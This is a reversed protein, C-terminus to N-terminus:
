RFLGVFEYLEKARPNKEFHTRVPAILKDLYKATANKLDMPHVRGKRYAEELEAYSEFSIDGGFKEPREIEITKEARFIIHKCYDLVPNYEVQKEPCFAKALKKKIEETSDHVFIAESPKSKSMKSSIEINIEKNEDFKGEFKPGGLGMLMHHSVVVPKWYGLKPGLERALMNIKRQGLGLQCIDAGLHFIDACQMAPYLYQAADKLEGETRDMIALCRNMRTLTTNKSILVVKKWYDKNGVIDSTKVIKVNNMDVGAAAWAEVFYEGVKSIAGLDGGMKNNIWAFWDAVLLKFEVGARLLEKILLPRFIGTHLAVLGSPEFGDYAIPHEKRELLERLDERTIIEEGVAAITELREELDM